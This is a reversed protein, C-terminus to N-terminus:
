DALRSELTFEDRKGLPCVRYWWEYCYRVDARMTEAVMGRIGEGM